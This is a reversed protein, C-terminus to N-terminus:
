KKLLLCKKYKSTQKGASETTLKMLYIGSAVEKNGSDKGNWYFTHQSSTEDRNIEKVLQGRINYIKLLAKQVPQSSNFNIQMDGKYSYPNPFLSLHVNESQIEDEQVDVLQLSGFPISSAFYVHKTENNQLWYIIRCNYVDGTILEIDELYNFRITDSFTEEHMLTPITSQEGLLRLIPVIVDSPLSGYDVVDEVFGVYVSCNNLFSQFVNNSDNSLSYYVSIVGNQDYTGTMTSSSIFTSDSLNAEDFYDQFLEPYQSPMYGVIKRNGNIMSAPNGTLSYYNFRFYSDECYFPIQTYHSYYNIVEINENELLDSQVQLLNNSNPDDMSLANEVLITSQRDTFLEFMSNHSNNFSIVDLTCQVTTSFNYQSGEPILTYYFQDTFDFTQMENPLINPLLISDQLAGSPYSFLQLPGEPSNLNLDIYVNTATTSDSVNLITYVPWIEEGLTFDGNWHFDVLDLDVELNGIDFSGYISFLFESEFSSAYMNQYYGDDFYYSNLGSSASAAIFQDTSNTPYDVILWFVTETITEGFDIINWDGFVMNAPQLTSTFLLSDPTLLPQNVDNKCVRIELNGSSQYNPIYIMVGEADFYNYGTEFASIDFKVAWSDSGYWHQDDTNTHYYLISDEIAPSVVSGHAPWYNIAGLSSFMLVLLIIEILVLKKL